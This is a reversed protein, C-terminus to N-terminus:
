YYLCSCCCFLMFYCYSIMFCILFLLRVNWDGAPLYSTPTNQQFDDSNRKMANTKEPSQCWQVLDLVNWFLRPPAFEGDVGMQAGLHKHFEVAYKGLNGGLFCRWESFSCGDHGMGLFRWYLIYFLAMLWPRPDCSDRGTNGIGASIRRGPELESIARHWRGGPTVNRHCKRSVSAVMASMWPHPKMPTWSKSFLIHVFLMSLKWISMNKRVSSLNWKAEIQMHKRKLFHQSVDPNTFADRRM